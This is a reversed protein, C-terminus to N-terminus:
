PKAYHDYQWVDTMNSSLIVVITVYDHSWMFYLPLNSVFLTIYCVCHINIEYSIYLRELLSSIISYLSNSILIYLYIDQILFEM